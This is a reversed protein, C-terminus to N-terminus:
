RRWGAAVECDATAKSHAESWGGATSYKAGAWGTLADFAQLYIEGDSGVARVTMPYLSDCSHKQIGSGDPLHGTHAEVKAEGSVPKQAAAENMRKIADLDYM